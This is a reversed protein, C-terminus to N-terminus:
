KQMFYYRMGIGADFGFDTDPAVEIAPVIELFVDFQSNKINHLVGVPIRIGIIFDDAFVFKAGGGFYFGLPFNFANTLLSYNHLLFDGHVQIADESFDYGAAADVGFNKALYYKVSAGTPEGLIPGVGLKNQAAMSISFGFLVFLLVLVIKKWM